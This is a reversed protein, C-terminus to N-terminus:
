IRAPNACQMALKRLRPREGSEEEEGAFASDPVQAQM